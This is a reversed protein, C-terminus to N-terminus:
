LINYIPRVTVNVEVDAEDVLSAVNTLTNAINNLIGTNQEVPSTTSDQVINSLTKVAQGLTENTM